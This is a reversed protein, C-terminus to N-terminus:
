LGSAKRSAVSVDYKKLLDRYHGFDLIQAREPYVNVGGRSAPMEIKVEVRWGEFYQKLDAESQASVSGISFLVVAFLSVLIKM